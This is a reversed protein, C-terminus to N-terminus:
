LLHYAKEFYSFRVLPKANKKKKKVVWEIIIRYSIQRFVLIDIFLEIIAMKYM